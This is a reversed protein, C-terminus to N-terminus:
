ARGNRERRGALLALFGPLFAVTWSLFHRAYDPGGPRPDTWIGSIAYFAAGSGVAALAGRALAGAPRAPRSRLGRADLLAFAAWLAMWLPFMALHGLPGALAYYGAAASLGIVAGALAGRAPRGRLAGLYLGIAVCLLTGHLLGYAAHHAPVFRAWVFDGLTSLAALLLAGLVPAIVAAM